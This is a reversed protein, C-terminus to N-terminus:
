QPTQVIGFLAVMGTGGCGMVNPSACAITFEVNLAGQHDFVASDYEISGAHFARGAARTAEGLRRIPILRVTGSGHLFGRGGASAMELTAAPLGNGLPCTATSGRRRCFM